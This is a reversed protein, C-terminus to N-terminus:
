HSRRWLTLAVFALVAGGIIAVRQTKLSGDPEVVVDKVRSKAKAAVNKPAVREAIADISEALQERAQEIQRELEAPDNPSTRGGV